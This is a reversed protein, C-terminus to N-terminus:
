GFVPQEAGFRFALSEESDEYLSLSRRIHQIFEVSGRTEREMTTSPPHRVQYSVSTSPPDPPRALPEPM